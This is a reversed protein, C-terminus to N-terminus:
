RDSEARLNRKTNASNATKDEVFLKTGFFTEGKGFNWMTTGELFHM